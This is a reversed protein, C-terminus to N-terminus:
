WVCMGSKEIIIDAAVTVILAVFLAHKVHDM